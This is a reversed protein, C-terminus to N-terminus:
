AAPPERLVQTEYREKVMQFTEPDARFKKLDKRLHLGETTIFAVDYVRLCHPCNFRQWAGGKVRTEYPKPTFDELCGDCEVTDV